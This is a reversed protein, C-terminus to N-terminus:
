VVAGTQDTVNGTLSGYLVQAFAAPPVALTMLVIILAWALLPFGTARNIVRGRSSFDQVGILGKSWAQQRAPASRKAEVVARENVHNQVSRPFVKIFQFM